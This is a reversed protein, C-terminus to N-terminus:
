RLFNLIICVFSTFMRAHHIRLLGWTTVGQGWLWLQYYSYIYINTLYSHSLSLTHHHNTMLYEVTNTNNKLYDWFEEYVYNQLAKTIFPSLFIIPFYTYGTTDLGYNQKTCGNLDGLKM